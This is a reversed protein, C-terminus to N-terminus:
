YICFFFPENFQITVFVSLIFFIHVPANREKWSFSIFLVFFRNAPFIFSDFVTIFSKFVLYILAYIIIGALLMPIRFESSYKTIMVMIGKIYQMSMYAKFSNTSNSISIMTAMVNKIM